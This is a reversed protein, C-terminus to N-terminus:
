RHWRMRVAVTCMAVCYNGLHEFGNFSVHMLPRDAERYEQLWSRRHQESNQGFGKDLLQGARKAHIPPALTAFSAPAEFAALKLFCRAGIREGMYPRHM